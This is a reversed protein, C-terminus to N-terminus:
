PSLLKELRLRTIKEQEGVAVRLETEADNDLRARLIALLEEGTKGTACVLYIRGFKAEYARNGEAIAARVDDASRAAGAQENAAWAATSRSAASPEGIRPHHSFAEDWDAVDLANWHRSAAEFLHARSQFPREHLMRDVWRASGCCRTLAARAEDGELDNLARCEDM